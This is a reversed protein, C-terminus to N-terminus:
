IRLLLWGDEAWAVDGTVVLSPRFRRMPIPAEFGRDGARILENLAALSAESAVNVPYGDAFNVVDDPRGFRPNPHRQTPDDLHVLRAPVGTIKGFWAHAEPDALAAQMVHGWVSVPATESGDPFRVHLEPADPHALLLGDVVEAPRVRLMSPYERATLQAGDDDVAMWRRDGRLGYKEVTAQQEVLPGCSKVPFRNIATLLM